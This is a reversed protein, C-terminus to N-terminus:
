SVRHKPSVSNVICSVPHPIVAHLARELGLTAKEISYYAIKEQTVKRITEGNDRWKRQLMLICRALADVDGVSYTYGTKGEEILDPACGVVDSVISPLGCAMAENVALGWTERGDSPLVFANSAKYFNPLESQNRFGAFHIREEQSRTLTRIDRRLPGDGVFIAHINAGKYLVFAQLCARVLDAPRKKTIFKGVFVVVFANFPINFQERIALHKGTELAEAARETFFDNDVFHPSFFLKDAPVGYHQLYERNRQGVYLHADIRPLFWRYPIYKVISKIWSRKTMLQSDSRMLVPVKNKLCAKITQIASKYNWGFVLFADFEGDGIIKAIEPTDCGSFSGVNPHRAVNKLWHHAYGELLPTDWQFEVGFGAEAQAKADQRHCYFVEIDLQKALYRFWPAYYQIPHTVLIGLRYAM